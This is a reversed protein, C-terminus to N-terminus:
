KFLCIWIPSSWAMNKNSLFIRPYYFIFKENEIISHNFAINEFSDSDNINSDIIKSDVNYTKIISNNRILEIKEILIPSIVKVRIERKHKLDPHDKLNILEGMFFKEVYFEIIVRAGTTGYCRRQNLANWISDKSLNDAWVAMIGPPYIGNDPDIPGSPYIGFHDDGGAVFGLKYGKRLADQVFCGKKELIAGRKRAYRGYGFFKYRPPLPNGELSSYEQNGWTSYIEVLKELSNDFYNWNRFGPRLATHHAIMLIKGEYSKLYKILKKISNYKRVDSRLIPLENDNSYICIDGYGSYWTGAEYGFFSVFDKNQNYKDVMIRIEEFDKDSTEWQHDHETTTGFDLGAKVLNEFYESLPRIGDSKNTHGHIYGWYLNKQDKAEKCLIPNSEYYSNNYFAVIYFVGSNEFKINGIEQIGNKGKGFPIEFLSKQSGDSDKQSIKITGSFNEVINKYIDEIRILIPFDEYIQVISPVIITIHNFDHHLVNIRPSNELLIQKRNPFKVLIEIKKDNEVLSQVLTNKIKIDFSNGKKVGKENLVLYNISLEKGTIMIPKLFCNYKLKLTTFGYTNPDYTQLYYWDNKNNRGGRM